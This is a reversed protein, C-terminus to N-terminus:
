GRINFPRGGDGMVGGAGSVVGCWVVGVRCGVWRWRVGGAGWVM